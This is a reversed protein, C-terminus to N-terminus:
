TKPQMPITNWVCKRSAIFSKLRATNQLAFVRGSLISLLFIQLTFSSSCHWTWAGQADTKYKISLSQQRQGPSREDCRELKRCTGIPCSHISHWVIYTSARKIENPIIAQQSRTWLIVPQVVLLICAWWCNEHRHEACTKPQQATCSAATAGKYFFGKSCSYVKYYLSM